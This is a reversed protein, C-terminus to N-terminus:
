VVGAPIAADEAYAAARFFLEWQQCTSDKHWWYYRAVGRSGSQGQPKFRYTRAAGFELVAGFIVSLSFCPPVSIVPKSRWDLKAASASLSIIAPKKPYWKKKLNCAPKAALTVENSSLAKGKGTSKAKMSMNTSAQTM